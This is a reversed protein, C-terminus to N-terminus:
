ARRAAKGERWAVLLRQDKQHEPPIAVMPVVRALDLLDHYRKSILRDINPLATSFQYKADGARQRREAYARFGAFTQVGAAKLAQVWDPMRGGEVIAFPADPHNKLYTATAPQRDNDMMWQMRSEATGSSADPIPNAPAAAAPAAPAPESAAAPPEVPPAGM